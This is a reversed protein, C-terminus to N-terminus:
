LYSKAATVYCKARFYTSLAVTKAFFRITTFNTHWSLVNFALDLLQDHCQYGFHHRYYGKASISDLYSFSPKRGINVLKSNLFKNLESFFHQTKNFDLKDERGYWYNDGHIRYQTLVHNTSYVMGYLSAAKVLFVDASIRIGEEPLPFVKNALLKTMTIGSTQVGLYPLFRYKDAFLYVQEPTSVQNIQGDFFLSNGGLEKLFRWEGPDSLIEKVLDVKVPMRDKDIVELFNNLLIDKNQWGMQSSLKVIEEVKQPYFIDDADLFCLISGLSAQFGANLSSAQGGNKKFIPVIRNEYSRIIEPSRDTSGDDVVVVEINLYTQELASDIAVQLFNDYNYNNIIISVLPHFNPSM